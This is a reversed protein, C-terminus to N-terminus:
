PLFCALFPFNQSVFFSISRDKYLSSVRLLSLSSTFLLLRSREDTNRERDREDESRRRIFRFAISYSASSLLVPLFHLEIGGGQDRRRRGENNMSRRKRTRERRTSSTSHSISCSRRNSSSPSPLTSLHRSLSSTPPETSQSRAFLPQLFSHTRSTLILSFLPLSCFLFLPLVYPLYYLQEM